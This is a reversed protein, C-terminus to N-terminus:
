KKLFEVLLRVGKGTGFEPIYYNDKSARAAGAIDLHVWKVKEDVFKEIFAAGTITGGERGGINRVDAFKSKIMDRHEDYIPLEWVREFTEEGAKFIEKKLKEDNGLMGILSPGLAVLVAGTLTALDVIATVKYNKQVYSIADALILRGEADTNGIDVSLGSYSVFIDGPKYSKGSISNEISPIVLILNKKLKLEVATMFAGLCAAAGAMDSKMDEVANSPKLNTGGTDFTVGKGVLAIKEKSKSDGNYEVVIFRPPYQSGRGSNWILNLKHDQIQKEDLVKHKLNHKRAFDSAIEALKQPTIINSNENVLDRAFKVNKNVLHTEKLLNDFKKNIDLSVDLAVDKDEKKTIYKDFKYDCLDIGEIIAKIEKDNEKPVEVTAEKEKRSKLTKYVVAYSRRLDELTYNKKVGILLVKQDDVKLLLTDEKKGHFNYSKLEEKIKEKNKNNFFNAKEKEEFVPIIVVGKNVGIDIRM